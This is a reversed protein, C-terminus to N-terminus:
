IIGVPLSFTTHHSAMRHQKWITLYYSPDPRTVPTQSYFHCFWKSFQRQMRILWLNNYHVFTWQSVKQTSSEKL